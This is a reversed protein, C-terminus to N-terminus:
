SHTTEETHKLHQIFPALQKSWAWTNRQEQAALGAAMDLTQWNSYAFRLSAAIADPSVSPALANPLDDIEADPGHEVRVAGATGPLFWESHGTCGTAVIPVGCVLAEIPVMGFGEGRSPQCVIHHQGYLQSLRAPDADLRVTLVVNSLSLGAGTQEAMWAMTKSVAELDLVLRLKAESPLEGREMLMGWAELLARTGKRERESSSLHLISFEGRRYGEWCVTRLNEDPAFGAAVGHPVVRVPLSTHEEVVSQAWGSPVLIETCLQELALVLGGPLQSSNPAVMAYRDRHSAGRRMAQLFGLPGTFVASPAMAGGPQPSDPPADRDFAVLGALLDAERLASAFGATVQAHSGHGVTRGYLRVSRKEM